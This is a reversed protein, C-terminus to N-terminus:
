GVISIQDNEVRKVIVCASSNVYMNKIGSLLKCGVDYMLVQWLAVRNVM